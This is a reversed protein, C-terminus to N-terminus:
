SKRFVNLEIYIIKEESNPDQEIIGSKLLEDVVSM